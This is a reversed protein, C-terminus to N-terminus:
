LTSQTVVVSNVQGADGIEWTLLVKGSLTPDEKLEREYCYQVEKLHTRVVLRIAERDIVGKEASPAESFKNLSSCAGLMLLLLTASLFTFYRMCTRRRKASM